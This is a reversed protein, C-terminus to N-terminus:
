QEKKREESAAEPAAAADAPAGADPEAAAAPADLGLESRQAEASVLGLQAILRARRPAARVRTLPPPLRSRSRTVDRARRACWSVAALLCLTLVLLAAVHGVATGKRLAVHLLFLQPLLLAAFAAKVLSATPANVGGSLAGVAVDELWGSSRQESAEAM